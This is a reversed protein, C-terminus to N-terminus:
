EVANFLLKANLIECVRYDLLEVGLSVALLFKPMYASLSVYLFIGLVVTGLM